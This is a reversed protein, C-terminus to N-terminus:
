ILKRTIIRYNAGKPRLKSEFLEISNVETKWNIVKEIQKKSLREKFRAITMHVRYPRKEKPKKFLKLLDEQIQFMEKPPDSSEIWIVKNMNNVFIKNFVLSINGIKKLENLKQISNDETEEYYPPILTLHLNDKKIFRLPLNKYDKQWKLVRCAIEEAVKIGIFLRM